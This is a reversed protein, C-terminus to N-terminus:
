NAVARVDNFRRVARRQEWRTAVIGAVLVLMFATAASVLFKNRLLFRSARYDFTDKRARVPLRELHRSIDESFQEVSQYRRAPDKRMAMLVINDLDGRLSRRLKAREGARAKGASQMTSARE